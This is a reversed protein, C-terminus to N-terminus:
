QGVLIIIIVIITCQTEEWEWPLFGRVVMFKLGHILLLTALLSPVIPITVMHVIFIM